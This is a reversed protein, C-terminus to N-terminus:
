MLFAVISFYRMPSRTISHDAFTSVDASRRDGSRGIARDGSRGGRSGAFTRSFGSVVTTKHHGGEPPGISPLAVGTAVTTPVAKM